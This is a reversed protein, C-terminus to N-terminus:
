SRWWTSSISTSIDDINDKDDENDDEDEQEEDANGMLIYNRKNQEM